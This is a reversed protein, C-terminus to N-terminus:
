RMQKNPFAAELAYVAKDFDGPIDTADLTVGRHTSGVDCLLRGDKVYVHIFHNPGFGLDVRQIHGQSDRQITPEVIRTKDNM